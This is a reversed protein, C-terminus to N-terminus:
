EVFRLDWNSGQLPLIEGQNPIGTYWQLHIFQIRYISIRIIIASVSKTLEHLYYEDIFYTKRAM